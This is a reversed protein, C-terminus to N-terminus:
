RPLAAVKKGSDFLSKLTRPRKAPKNLRKKFHAPM